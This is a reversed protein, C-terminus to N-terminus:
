PLIEVLTGNEIKFTLHFFSDFFSESFEIPQWGKLSKTLTLLHNKIIKNFTKKSYDLGVELIEFRGIEGKCNILFRITIYGSENIIGRNDYNAKFYRKLSDKGPRFRAPSRLSRYYPFVKEEFCPKFNDESFWKKSIHGVQHVHPNILYYDCGCLMLIMFMCTFRMKM